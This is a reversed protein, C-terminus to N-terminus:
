RKGRKRDSVYTKIVSERLGTKKSMFRLAMRKPTTIPRLEPSEKVALREKPGLPKASDIWEQCDTDDVARAFFENRGFHERLEPVTVNRQEKVRVAKVLVQVKHILPFAESEYTYAVQSVTNNCPEASTLGVDDRSFQVGQDRGVSGEPPTPQIPRPARKGANTLVYLPAPDATAPSAVVRVQSHAKKQNSAQAGRPTNM